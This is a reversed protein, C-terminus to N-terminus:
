GDSTPLPILKAGLIREAAGGEDTDVHAGRACVVADVPRLMSLLGVINAGTGNFTLLTDGTGFLDRFRDRCDRTWRDDGYALAHGQNAEAIADIVSPHAGAANDSAFSRDPPPPM